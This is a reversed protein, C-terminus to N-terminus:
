KRAVAQSSHSGHGAPRKLASYLAAAQATHPLPSNATAPDVAHESQATPLYWGDVPLAHRSHARPLTAAKRPEVVHKWQGDPLYWSLTAYWSHWSHAAAVHVSPCIACVAHTLTGVAAGV